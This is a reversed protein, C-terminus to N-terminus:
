RGLRTLGAAYAATLAETLESSHLPRGIVDDGSAVIGSPRYQVM